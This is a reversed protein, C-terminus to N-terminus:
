KTGYLIIKIIIPTLLIPVILAIHLGWMGAGFPAGFGIYYNSACIYYRSWRPFVLGDTGENSILVLVIALAICCLIVVSNLINYRTVRM